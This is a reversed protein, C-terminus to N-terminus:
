MMWSEARQNATAMPLVLRCSHWLPVASAALGGRSLCGAVLVASPATETAVGVIVLVVFWENNNLVHIM